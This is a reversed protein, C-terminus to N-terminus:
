EIDIFDSEDQMEVSKINGTYISLQKNLSIVTDGILPSNTNISNVIHASAIDFIKDVTSNNSKLKTSKNSKNINGLMINKLPVIKYLKNDYMIIVVKDRIEDENFNNNKLAFRISDDINIIGMSICNLIPINDIQINIERKTMSIM